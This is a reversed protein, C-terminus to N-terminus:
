ERVLVIDHRALEPRLDEFDLMGVCNMAGTEEVGKEVWRRVLALIPAAAIAPGANGRAVLHAVYEDEQNRRTGRVAVRIAAARGHTRASRATRRVFWAAFPSLGQVSGSRRLKAMVAIVASLLGPAFGARATINAVGFENGVGDLNLSCPWCRRRSVPWPFNVAESKPSGVGKPRSLRAKGRPTKHAHELISQTTAIERQDGMGPTLFVRIESARDFEKTLMGALVAAVGPAAGAGTVLLAKHDRAERALRAFETSYERSEAPDIYHVGHTACRAAVAVHDRTMFPGRLNVVAFAGELLRQLSSSDNPDIVMFPVGIGGAFNTARSSPPLGLVCEVHAMVALDITVRRTFEGYSGLVVVKRKIQM